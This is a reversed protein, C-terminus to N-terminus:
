VRRRGQAAKADAEALAEEIAADEEAGEAVRELAVRVKPDACTQAAIRVRETAEEPHSAKLALAAGIRDEPSADARQLVRTLGEFPLSARRYSGDLAMSRIAERWSSVTRGARALAALAETGQATKAREELADQISEVLADRQMQRQPTGVLYLPVPKATGDGKVLELGRATSRVDVVGDFSEFWTRRANRVRLGDLGVTVEPASTAMAAGVFAALVITFWMIAGSVSEGGLPLFIPGAVFSSFLAALLAVPRMSASFVTRATRKEISIGAKALLSRATDADKADVLVQEGNELLLEIHVPGNPSVPVIMAGAVSAIPIRRVPEGRVIVLEAGEVELTGAKAQAMSSLVWALLGSAVASGWVASLFGDGWFGPREINFGKGIIVLVLPLIALGLAGWGLAKSARRAFDRRRLPPSSRTDAM